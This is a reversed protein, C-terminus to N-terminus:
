DTEALTGDPNAGDLRVTGVPVALDLGADEFASQLSTNVDNRVEKWRDLAEIYYTVRIQMTREGYDWFWAGTKEADVGDVAAVTEAALAIAREMEAATTDYTLGIETDVRRTAESTINKIEADAITSNPLTVVRGDFDRIRTTRLGIQEVTGATGDIEVIDDVLFPKTSLLHAGGFLDAMTKRAAFAVALGGVGLSAIIATVDYGVSDLIVIGAIAAIAINAIRSVIPVLEDDLKSATQEAYEMMYTEVLGDTLRITLWAITVIVPIEVSVAVLSRLPEVPSLVQRGVAVGLVMGLLVVPGSLSHLGLDDIETDTAEARKKFRREYLYSLSRGLLLGAGVIAFFLLYELITSGLYTESLVSEFQM